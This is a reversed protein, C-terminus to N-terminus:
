KQMNNRNKLMQMYEKSIHFSPCSYDNLLIEFYDKFKVVVADPVIYQTMEGTSYGQAPKPNLTCIRDRALKIRDVPVHIIKALTQLQKKGLLEMGDQIIALEVECDEYNKKLQLCLCEKVDYACVGVPELEKMIDLCNKVIEEKSGLQEAMEAVSLKLFGSTDLNDAIYEFVRDEEKSYSNSLLQQMLVDKLTEANPTSINNLYNDKDEDEQDYRYYARNQEDLGTLWELKKLREEQKNEPMHEDLDMVPNEMSQEKIYDALEMSSMQLIEVSQIMNQSLTQKQSQVLEVRM